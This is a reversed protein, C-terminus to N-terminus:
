TIIQAYAEIILDLYEDQDMAWYKDSFIEVETKGTFGAEYVWHMIRSLDICGEGMLARDNLVDAMPMKYDCIHFGFIKGSRGSRYIEKELDPDWWLHYVDIVTGLYEDNFKEVIDNAQTLTNIASREYAYMPHLPEIGLKIRYEKAVPLIEELGDVIQSRSKELSQGPHAGCVLVLLPANIQAAERIMSKNWDVSKKRESSSDHAFFGGRVYSTVELPYQRILQNVKGADSDRVVHEWISIGGIGRHTYADLAEELSWPKNTITHICLNSLDM